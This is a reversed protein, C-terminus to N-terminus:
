VRNKERGQVQYALEAASGGLVDSCSLRGFM